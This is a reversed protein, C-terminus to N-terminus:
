RPRPASRPPTRWGISSIPRRRAPSPSATATSPPSAPLRPPSTPLPTHVGHRLPGRRKAADLRRSQRLVPRQDVVPWEFDEVIPAGRGGIRHSPSRCRRRPPRSRPWGPARRRTGRRSSRAATRTPCSPSRTPASGSARRRHDGGQGDRGAAALHAADHGRRDVALNDLTQSAVQGVVDGTVLARAHRGARGAAAAIRMMLRRYISSACRRRAGDDHGAAAARRVPGPVARAGLQYPALLASWSACRTTRPTRPSRIATFTCSTAHCGRRIMRWAAVPSDIGGSLLVLVRGGAGVPLGGAGPEKDFYYFRAADAGRRARDAPGSSTSAGAPEDQVRSGIARELDPSPIPFQKDRAAGRRPLQARARDRLDRLM